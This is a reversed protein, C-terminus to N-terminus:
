GNGGGEKDEIRKLWDNLVRAAETYAAALYAAPEGMFKERYAVAIKSSALLLENRRVTLSDRAWQGRSEHDAWEPRQLATDHAALAERAIQRMSAASLEDGREMPYKALRELAERLVDAM